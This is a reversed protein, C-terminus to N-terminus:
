GGNHYATSVAQRRGWCHGTGHLQSGARAAAAHTIEAAVSSRERERSLSPPYAPFSLPLNIGSRKNNVSRDNVTLQSFNLGVLKVIGVM